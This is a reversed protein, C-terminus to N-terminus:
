SKLTETFRQLAKDFFHKPLRAKRSERLLPLLSRLDGQEALAEIVNRYVMDESDAIITLLIPTAAKDKIRGLAFVASARVWRSKDKSMKELAQFVEENGNKWLAIASNVRVRDNKDILMRSCAEDLNDWKLHSLAEIANARVRADEHALQKSIIETYEQNLTKGLASVATAMVWIDTDQNQVMKILENNLEPSNITSAAEIANIRLWRERAFLCEKITTIVKSGGIKGLILIM